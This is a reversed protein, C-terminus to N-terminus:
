FIIRRFREEFRPNKLTSDPTYRNSMREKFVKPDSIQSKHQLLANIKIEWYDTIDIWSNPDRALSIWVESPSHPQLGEVSLLEPFFIPNGAAPYVADLVAQGAARHDPHNIRNQHVYLLEPDCTVIIDPKEKRIERTIDRRLHINPFLYGDPYTLFNVHHVGLVEAACRQEQSRIECLEKLDVTPDSSGKDGCTLLCYSISHGEIGWKAITGGCFFEPDDPHALIVLIKQTEQWLNPM